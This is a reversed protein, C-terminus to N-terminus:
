MHESPGALLRLAEKLKDEMSSLGKKEARVLADRAEYRSFGLALLTELTDDAPIFSRMDEETGAKIDVDKIKEKLELIIRKATKGGIGPVETLLSVDECVIATKIKSVSFASLISLAAKPGIGTVSLLQLFLNKEDRTLFGYLSVDDERMILHTHLTTEEGQSIKVMSSVPVHLLYGVGGVDLVLRDAEATWVTGRLMGIM